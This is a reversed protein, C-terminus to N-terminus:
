YEYKNLKLYYQYFQINYANKVYRKCNNTQLYYYVIMKCNNSKKLQNYYNDKLISSYFFM